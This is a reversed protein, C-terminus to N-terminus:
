FKPMVPMDELITAGPLAIGKGGEEGCTGGDAAALAMFESAMEGEALEEAGVVKDGDGLPERVEGVPVTTTITAVIADTAPAATM